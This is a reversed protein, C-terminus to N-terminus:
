QESALAPFVNNATPSESVDQRGTWEGRSREAGRRKGPLQGAPPKKAAENAAGSHGANDVILTLLSHRHRRDFRM